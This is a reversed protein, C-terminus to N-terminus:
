VTVAIKDSNNGVTAVWNKNFIDLQEPLCEPLTLFFVTICYIRDHNHRVMQM